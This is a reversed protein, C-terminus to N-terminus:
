TINDLTAAVDSVVLQMDGNRVVMRDTVQSDQPTYVTGWSTSSVASNTGQDGGYFPTTTTAPAFTVPAPANVTIHAPPITVVPTPVMGLTGKQDNSYYLGAPGPVAATMTTTAPVTQAINGRSSACSVTALLLLGLILCILILKKM